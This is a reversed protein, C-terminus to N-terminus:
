AGKARARAKKEKKKGEVLRGSRIAKYLTDPKLGLEKAVESRGRGSSLMEQARTVVEVTLVRPRRKKREAFFAATGGTRYKKVWRKVSIASVGFARVIESQKCSGNVYLQSTFMRFSKLDGEHHCFVPFCGHFYYIMGDRKAFSLLNNIPTVDAPFLPLITQAM